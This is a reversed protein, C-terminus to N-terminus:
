DIRTEGKSQRYAQTAATRLLALDDSLRSVTLLMLSDERAHM